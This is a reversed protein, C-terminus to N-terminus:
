NQDMKLIKRFINLSVDIIHKSANSYFHFEIQVMDLNGSEVKELGFDIDFPSNFDLDFSPWLNTTM